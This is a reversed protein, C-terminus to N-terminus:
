KPPPDKEPHKDPVTIIIEGPRAMGMQERALKEIAKPDSKLGKIQLELQQNEKELQQIQQQLSEFDRQQRRLALYGHQGFIEHVILAICMLAVALIAGRQYRADFRPSQKM